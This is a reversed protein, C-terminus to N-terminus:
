RNDYILADNLRIRGNYSFRGVISKGNKITPTLFTSAGEGSADRAMGYVESIGKLTSASFTVGRMKFTYVM